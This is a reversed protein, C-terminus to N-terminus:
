DTLGDHRGKRREWRARAVCKGCGARCVPGGGGTARYALCGSAGPERERERHMNSVERNEIAPLVTDHSM